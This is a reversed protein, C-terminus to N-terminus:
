DFWFRAQYYKKGFHETEEISFEDAKVSSAFLGMSLKFDESNYDAWSVMAGDRKTIIKTAFYENYDIYFVPSGERGITFKFLSNGNNPNKEGYFQYMNLFTAAANNIDTSDFENYSEITNICNIFDAYGNCECQYKLSRYPIKAKEGKNSDGYAILTMAQASSHVKTGNFDMESSKGSHRVYGVKKAQILDFFQKWTDEVIQNHLGDTTLNLHVLAFWLFDKKAKADLTCFQEWTYNLNASGNIIYDELIVGSNKQTTM